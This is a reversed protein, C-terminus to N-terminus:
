NTTDRYGQPNPFRHPPSKQECLSASGSDRFRKRIPALKLNKFSVIKLMLRNSRFQQIETVKLIQSTTHPVNKSAFHHLDRIEFGNEFRLLNSIKLFLSKEVDASKVKIQQIETVKLIQSTKHPVKKSVFHHLNRIESGNEFRLLNSIKQVM